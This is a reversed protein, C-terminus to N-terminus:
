NRRLSFLFRYMRYIARNYVRDWTGISRVLEGGFGRKFRYVGWLGGKETPFLKELTEHDEDPVGWLDYTRCGQERAWRIAEWQLLYTPMRNREISTSAGYLYWSRSGQSFVMIASLPTEEFEAVFLECAGIPYFLDYARRYYASTHAGFSDRKATEEIMTGFAELNGWPRVTVGKRTALKINYRTKQNMRGLISNEDAELNILITRLPQISQISPIFGAELLERESSQNEDPEIKLLFANNKSCLEDLAPLLKSFNPGVPGKPIYALSLGLPFKRFLVQAGSDEIQVRKVDWGFDAKLV